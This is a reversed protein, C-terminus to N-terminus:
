SDLLQAAKEAAERIELLDARRPDAEPTQDLVLEVFGLIVGLYNRMGHATRAADDPAGTSVYDM